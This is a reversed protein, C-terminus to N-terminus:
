KKSTQLRMAVLDDHVRQPENKWSMNATDQAADLAGEVDVELPAFLADLTETAPGDASILEFSKRLAQDSTLSRVLVEAIQSRAVVGDSPSGTQRRDGQLFILKKQNSGNMDFWGPLVITYPLGSTRVLREARRKWDHGETTRNYSGTRDTVGITSMPAIRAKKSGLTGLVNRVGGYNVNETGARGGSGAGLTFVIADVDKVAGHLTEPQTVDGIVVHTEPPFRSAKSPNRVLARVSHGQRIAEDVVLRGVSGTAGVVLVLM